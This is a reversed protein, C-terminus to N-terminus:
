KNFLYRYGISFIIDLLLILKVMKINNQMYYFFAAFYFLSHMVRAEHWFVKKVQIENNSGTLGKYLFGSGIIFLLMKAILDNRKHLFLILYVLLIRVLLCIFWLPHM